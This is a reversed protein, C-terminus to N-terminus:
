VLGGNVDIIAGNIYYAPPTCLFYIVEAQDNPTSLRGLPVTKALSVQGDKSLASDLMPSHTQSPATCNLRIGKPGLEAALHRTMGIIAAKSTSYHCGLSLSRTRGAISSVNVISPNSSKSLLPLAAQIVFFPATLNVRIVEDWQDITIDEAKETYAIGASNILADIKEIAVMNKFFSHIEDLNLLDVAHMRCDQAGNSLASLRVKELRKTDRGLGIIRYGERSFKLVCAEGIGSTAGTVLVTKM